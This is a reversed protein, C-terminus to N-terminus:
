DAIIKNFEPTTIYKDHDHNTMKKETKSIKTNYDTKKILNSVNPIKNKVATLATTSALDAINPIKDKAENMKASLGSITALNTINPTEGKIENIEANLTAKTTLNTIDPVQDEINKIKANYMDKKIVDNKVLDILKRLDVPAPVLKGVDLQDVKSNLNNLNTLVNKLKDIDLKDVSSKLSGLDVEKVFKLTDVGTTNKLDAKTVYNTLDLEGKM